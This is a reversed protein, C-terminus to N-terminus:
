YGFLNRQVQSVIGMFVFAVQAQSQVQEPLLTAQANPKASSSM